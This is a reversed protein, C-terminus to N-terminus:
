LAAKRDSFRRAIDHRYPLVNVAEADQRLEKAVFESGNDLRINEPIGRFLMVDALAEIV